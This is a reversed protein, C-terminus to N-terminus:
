YDIRLMLRVSDAPVGAMEAIQNRASELVDQIRMSPSSADAEQPKSSREPDDPSSMVAFGNTPEKQEGEMFMLGHSKGDSWMVKARRCLAKKPIELELEPPLTVPHSFVIHAGTGSLDRVTCEILSFRNNFVVRGQLLTRTRTSQRKDM